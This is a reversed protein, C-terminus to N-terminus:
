NLQELQYIVEEYNKAHLRIVKWGMSQALGYKEIDREIAKPRSHAGGGKLWIGGEFEIAVMAELFAFDFKFKRYPHFKYETNLEYGKLKGWWTLTEKLWIVQPADKRVKRHKQIVNDLHQNKHWCKSKKLAELTFPKM